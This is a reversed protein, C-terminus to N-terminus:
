RGREVERFTGIITTVIADLDSQTYQPLLALALVHTLFNATHPTGGGPAASPERSISAHFVPGCQSFSALQANFVHIQESPAFLHPVRQLLAQVEAFDKYANITMGPIEKPFFPILRWLSGCDQTFLSCITDRSCRMPSFFHAASQHQISYYEELSTAGIKRISPCDWVSGGPEIFFLDRGGICRAIIPLPDRSLTQQVRSVYHPHLTVSRDDQKPM